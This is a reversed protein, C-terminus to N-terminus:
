LWYFRPQQHVDKDKWIFNSVKSLIELLLLLLLLSGDSSGSPAQSVVSGKSDIYLTM